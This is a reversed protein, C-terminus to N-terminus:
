ERSSVVSKVKPTFPLQCQQRQEQGQPDVADQLDYGDCTYSGKAKTTGPPQGQEQRQPYLPSQPDYVDSFQIYGKGNGETVKPFRM